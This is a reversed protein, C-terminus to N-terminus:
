DDGEGEDEVAEHTIETSKNLLHGYKNEIEKEYKGKWYGDPMDQITGRIEALVKRARRTEGGSVYRNVTKSIEEFTQVFEQHYEEDRVIRIVADVQGSVSAIKEMKLLMEILMHTGLRGMDGLTRFPFKKSALISKLNRMEGPQIRFYIREAHGKTDSAPIVFDEEKYKKDQFILLAGTERGKNVAM